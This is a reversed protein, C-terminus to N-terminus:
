DDGRVAARLRALLGRAQREQERERMGEAADRVRSLQEQAEALARAHMDMMLEQGAQLDDVQERLTDAAARREEEAQHLEA